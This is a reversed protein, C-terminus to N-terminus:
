GRRKRHAKSISLNQMGEEIQSLGEKDSNDDDSQTESTPPAAAAASLSESQYLLAKPTDAFLGEEDVTSSSAFAAASSTDKNAASDSQLSGDAIISSISQENNIHSTLVQVVTLHGNQVADQLAM